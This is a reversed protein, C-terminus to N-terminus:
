IFYVPISAFGSSHRWVVSQFLDNCYGVVLRFESDQLLSWGQLGPCNTM